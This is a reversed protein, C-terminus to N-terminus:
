RRTWPPEPFGESTKAAYDTPPRDDPLAAPPDNNADRTSDGRLKRVAFYVTLALGATLAGAVFSLLIVIGLKSSITGLGFPFAVSVEARNSFIFWLTVGLVFAAAILYRSMWLRRLILPRRRKYPSSM